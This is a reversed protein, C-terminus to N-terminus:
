GVEGALPEDVPESAEGLSVRVGVKADARRHLVDVKRPLVNVHRDTVAVSLPWPQM